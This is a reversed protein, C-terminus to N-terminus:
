TEGLGLLREGSVPEGGRLHKSSMGAVRDRRIDGRVADVEQEHARVAVRGQAPEDDAAGGGVEQAIALNGDDKETLSQTPNFCFLGLGPAAHPGPSKIERIELFIKDRSILPISEANIRLPIDIADKRDYGKRIM